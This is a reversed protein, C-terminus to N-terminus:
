AKSKKDKKKDKKDKKEAKDKKDSKEPASQSTVLAVKWAEGNGVRTLVATQVRKSESKSQGDDVTVTVKYYMWAVRGLLRTGINGVKHTITAGPAEAAVGTVFEQLNDRRGDVVMQFREAALSDLALTDRQAILDHFVTLTSEAAATRQKILSEDDDPLTRSTVVGCSALTLALVALLALRRFM